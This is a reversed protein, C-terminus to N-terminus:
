AFISERASEPLVSAVLELLERLREAADQKGAEINDQILDDMVADRGTKRDVLGDTDVRTVQGALVDYWTQANSLLETYNTGLFITVICLMALLIYHRKVQQRGLARVQRRDIM